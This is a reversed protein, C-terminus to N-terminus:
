RVQFSTRLRMLFRARRWRRRKPTRFRFDSGAMNRNCSRLQLLHWAPASFVSCPSVQPSLEPLPLTRIKM